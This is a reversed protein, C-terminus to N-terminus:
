TEMPPNQFVLFKEEVMLFKVWLKIEKLLGGQLGSKFM